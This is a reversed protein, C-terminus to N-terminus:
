HRGGSNGSFRFAGGHGSERYGGIEISRRRVEQARWCLLIMKKQLHATPVCSIRFSNRSKRTISQARMTGVERRQCHSYASDSTPKLSHSEDPCGASRRGSEAAHGAGTGDGKGDQTIYSNLAMNQSKFPVTKWGDQRFIRCLGATIFSKGASSM